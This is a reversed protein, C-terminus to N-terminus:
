PSRWLTRRLPMIGGTRHWWLEALALALFPGYLLGRWLLQTHGPDFYLLFSALTLYLVSLSPCLCAPLALWAYYWAYHPTMAVMLAAVLIQANQAVVLTESGPAPQERVFVMWLALAAFLAAVVGLYLSVAPAAAVRQLALLYYFGDGLRYGEETGYGSLFGLVKWGAGIYLLYFVIIVSACAAPLKIDWKRWFAPLLVAPLFKVLIAAGLAAGTLAMRGRARALLALAIFGIVVADLHGNGAFEWVTIPNWAYILVRERPLGLMGLLKVVAAIAMVEVLVMAIKMALVSASVQTVLFFLAQAVPPYVTTAYHARNINPFIEADRLAALEPAEPIHLYPNIGAGQVRGDWVYRYIDTSLFPSSPLVVLRMVGAVILVIWLLQRKAPGRLVAVVAALYLLGSALAVAVFFDLRSRSAIELEGPIRVTLGLATLGILAGGLLALMATRTLVQRLRTGLSM